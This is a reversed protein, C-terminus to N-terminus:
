DCSVESTKQLQLELFKKWETQALLLSESNALMNATEVRQEYMSQIARYRVIETGPSLPFRRAKKWAKELLTNNDLLLNDAKNLLTRFRLTRFYFAANVKRDLAYLAPNLEKLLGLLRRVEDLNNANSYIQCASLISGIQFQSSRFYSKLKTTNELQSPRETLKRVEILLAELKLADPFKAWLKDDLSLPIIGHALFRLAVESNIATRAHHLMALWIPHRYENKKSTRVHKSIDKLIDASQDWTKSGANFLYFKLKQMAIDQPDVNRFAKDDLSVDIYNYASREFRRQVDDNMAQAGLSNKFSRRPLKLVGAFIKTTSHNNAAM